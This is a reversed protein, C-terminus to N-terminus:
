PVASGVDLDGEFGIRGRDFGAAKGCQGFGADIAHRQPHLREIRRREAEEAPLMGGVLRDGRKFRGAPMERAIGEVQDIGPRALRDLGPRGFQFPREAERAPTGHERQDDSATREAHSM